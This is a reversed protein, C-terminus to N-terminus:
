KFSECLKNMFKSITSSDILIFRSQRYYCDSEIHTEINKLRVDGRFSGDVFDIIGYFSISIIEYIHGNKLEFCVNTEYFSEIADDICKVQDGIKFTM